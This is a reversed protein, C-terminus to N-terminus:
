PAVVRYFRAASIANTITVPVTEESPPLNTLTLWNNTGSLANKFEVVYAQGADALFSFRFAEGEILADTIQPPPLYDITLTPENFANERSGFRRATTHVTEDQTKLLWGFNEEPRDLWAQVDEVLNSTSNFYYVNPGYVFQEGSPIAAYDLSSAGGPIAWTNTTEAFRHVWTAEDATAPVGRGINNTNFKAGEGWPKLLKHLQFNSEAPEDVPFGVVVLTVTASRIKSGAPIQGAISFRFLARNTNGNLTTGANIHPQAGMNNTPELQILTTDAVAYLDISAGSLHGGWVLGLTFFFALLKGCISSLLHM